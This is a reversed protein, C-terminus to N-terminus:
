CPRQFSIFQHQFRIWVQVQVQVPRQLIWKSVSRPVRQKELNHGANLQPLHSFTWPGEPGLCNPWICDPGVSRGWYTSLKTGPGFHRPGLEDLVLFISKYFGAYTPIHSRHCRYERGRSSCDCGCIKKDAPLVRWFSAEGPKLVPLTPNLNVM